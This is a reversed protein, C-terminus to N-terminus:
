AMYVLDALVFLSIFTNYILYYEQGQLDRGGRCGPHEPQPVSLMGQPEPLLLACGMRGTQRLDPRPCEFSLIRDIELRFRLARDCM